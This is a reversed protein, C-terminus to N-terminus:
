TRNVIFNFAFREIIDTFAVSVDVRCIHQQRDYDSTNITPTIYEYGGGLVFTSAVNNLETQLLGYVESSAFESRYNRSVALMARQLRLLTRVPHILSLPTNKTQTTNETAFHTSITDREIYNLQNRYLQDKEPETPMWSINTFGSITGRRPGVFNVAPSYATDNLPIKSALFFTPTVKVPKGSWEDNITLHQTFISTYFTDYNMENKRKEIAQAANATSIGQDLITVCDQRIVSSLENMATKVMVAYNCDLVLDFVCLNPNTILADTTGNYARVLAQDLTSNIVLEGYENEYEYGWGNGSGGGGLSLNVSSAVTKFLYMSVFPENYMPVVYSEGESGQLTTDLHCLDSDYGIASMLNTIAYEKYQNNQYDEGFIRKNLEDLDIQNWIFKVAADTPVIFEEGDEDKRVNGDADVIRLKTEVYNVLNDYNAVCTLYSSYRNVVDVIYLSEKSSSIADPDLAVNFSERATEGNETLESITLKFMSWETYTKELASDYALSVSLRNYWKGSGKPLFRAFEVFCKSEPLMDAKDVTNIVDRTTGVVYGRKAAQYKNMISPRDQLIKLDENYEVRKYTGGQIEYDTYQTTVFGIANYKKEIYLSNPELMTDEYKSVTKESYVAYEGTSASKFAISGVSVPNAENFAKLINNVDETSQINLKLTVAFTSGAGKVFSVSFKGGTYDLTSEVDEGVAISIQHDQAKAIKDFLTGDEVPVTFTIPDVEKLLEPIGVVDTNLCYATSEEGTGSSSGEGEVVSVPIFKAKNESNLSAYLNQSITGMPNVTIKAGNIDDTLIFLTDDESANSSLVGVESLYVLAENVKKSVSAYGGLDIPLDAAYTMSTNQVAVVKKLQSELYTTDNIDGADIEVQHDEDHTYNFLDAELVTMSRSYIVEGSTANTMPYLTAKTYAGTSPNVNVYPTVVIEPDNGLKIQLQSKVNWAAAELETMANVGITKAPVSSYVGTNDEKYVEYSINWTDDTLGANITVMKAQKYKELNADPKSRYEALLRKYEGAIFAYYDYVQMGHALEDLTGKEGYQSIKTECFEDVLEFTEKVYSKLDSIIDSIKTEKDAISFQLNVTYPAVIAVVASGSSSSSGKESNRAAAFKNAETISTFIKVIDEGAPNPETYWEDNEVIGYSTVDIKTSAFDESPYVFVGPIVEQTTSDVKVFEKATEADVLHVGKVEVYPHNCVNEVKGAFAYVQGAEVPDTPKELKVGKYQAGASIAYLEIEDETMLGLKTTPDVQGGELVYYQPQIKRNGKSEGRAYKQNESEAKLNHLKMQNATMELTVYEEEDNTYQVDSRYGIGLSISAFTEDDPVVRVVWLGGGARLWQIANLGSQGYKSYNPEGLTFTYESTSSIYIAENPMGKEAELAIFQNSLGTSTVTLVANDIIRSESHPHIYAMDTSM